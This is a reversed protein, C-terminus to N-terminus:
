SLPRAVEQFAAFAAQLAVGLVASVDIQNTVHPVTNASVITALVSNIIQDYADGAFVPHVVICVPATRCVRGLIRATEILTAGTSVVDDVIVPTAGEPVSVGLGDVTVDFDGSRRKKLIASGAGASGAITEVWQASEADPGIFFPSGVNARVWQAIPGAASAAVAPISYIESLSSYRHLHPDVTALWDFSTSLLRAFTLSTVAEGQNFATDQRMYPLYPAVIGVSRAGQKRAADALFLVPLTKDDPHDLSCLLVVDRGAVPTILRLYTEGDPFRRQVLRGVELNGGRCLREALANAAHLPFLLQTM